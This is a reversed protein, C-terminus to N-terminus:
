IYLALLLIGFELALTRALLRWAQPENMNRHQYEFGGIVIAIVLMALPLSILINLLPLGGQGTQVRGADWPFFRLYTRIIIERSALFSLVALVATLFWTGYALGYIWPSIKAELSTDM